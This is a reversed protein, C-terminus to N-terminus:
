IRSLPMVATARYWGTATGYQNYITINGSASVNMLLTADGSQSALTINFTDWLKRPLSINGITRFTSGPTADVKLNIVFVVIEGNSFAQIRNFNTQSVYSNTAYTTTLRTWVGPERVTVDGTQGNVSTVVGGGGGATEGTTAVFETEPTGLKIETYTEGLVDYKYAVMRLDETINADTWYVHVTDGMSVPVAHTDIEPGNIMDVTVTKAPLWPTTADLLATAYSLMEADTPQTQFASTVDLPVAKIPTIPTTPQALTNGTPKIVNGNGDTWYPLFANYTETEDTVYDINVMNTSFRASAGNDAGRRNALHVIISPMGTANEFTTTFYVEYGQATISEEDGVLAALVSKPAAVTVNHPSSGTENAFNVKAGNFVTYRGISPVVQTSIDPISGSISLNGVLIHNALRRSIHNCYFTVMGDIPVSHKYVDFAEAKVPQGFTTAKSPGQAIVSVSGLLDDYLPGYVPYDFELEFAGGTTERMECRTADVLKGHDGMNLVNINGSDYLVPIM